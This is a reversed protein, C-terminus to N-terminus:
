CIGGCDHYGTFNTGCSKCLLVQQVPPEDRRDKLIAFLRDEDEMSLARGGIVILQKQISVVSLGCSLEYTIKISM